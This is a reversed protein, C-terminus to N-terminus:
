PAAIIRKAAEVFFSIPKKATGFYAEGSRGTGDGHNGEMAYFAQKFDTHFNSEPFDNRCSTFAVFGDKGTFPRRSTQVPDDSGWGVIEDILAAPIPMLAPTSFWSISKATMGCMISRIYRVAVSSMVVCGGAGSPCALQLGASTTSQFRTQCTQIARHPLTTGPPCGCYNRVANLLSNAAADQMATFAATARPFRDTFWNRLPTTSVPPSTCQSRRAHTCVRRVGGDRRRRASVMVGCADAAPSGRFPSQSVIWGVGDGVPQDRPRILDCGPKRQHIGAAVVLGGMSHTVVVKPKLEQIANCYEGVVLPDDWGRRLTDVKLFVAHCTAAPDPVGALL